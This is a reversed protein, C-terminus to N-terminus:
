VSVTKQISNRVRLLERILKTVAPHTVHHCLTALFWTIDTHAPDRKAKGICRQAEEEYGHNRYELARFLYLRAMRAGLEADLDGQRRALTYIHDYAQEASRTYDYEVHRRSVRQRDHKRFISGIYSDFYLSHATLKARTCYEWDQCGTLKELWPGMEQLMSRRYVPGSTHWTYEPIDSSRGQFEEGIISSYEDSGLECVATQSYVMDVSRSQFLQVARVLKEKLLLDDSDLFQIFQGQSARTGRNRAAQAGMNKQSLYEVTFGSEVKHGEAWTKVINETGDSSGDDVVIVEIPRYTQQYVSDLAEQIIAARNYTPIIVSVLGECGEATIWAEDM